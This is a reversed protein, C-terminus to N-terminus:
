PLASRLSEITQAGRLARVVNGNGDLVYTVPTINTWGAGHFREALAADAWVVPHRFAARELTTASETAPYGQLRDVFVGVVAVKAPDVEAAFARIAPKERECTPCRSRFFNLVVTKGRLTSLDLRGGDTTELDFTIPKGISDQIRANTYWRLGFMTGEYVTVLGGVVVLVLGITRLSSRPQSVEESM